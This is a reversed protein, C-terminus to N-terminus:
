PMAQTLSIFQTLQLDYSAKLDAYKKKLLGVDAKARPLEEVGWAIGNIGLEGNIYDSKEQTGDPIIVVPCGCMIAEYTLITSNDFCYLVKSARFLKGLERKKPSDRTIEFVRNRDFFGEKFSSKGVYFCELGRFRDSDGDNFFISEDITPLYLKGAVKNRIAPAYANAYNFVLESESYVRDGGLLGPKNLVWRAVRKANLPNGPVTEPYVVVYRDLVWKSLDGSSLLPAIYKESTTQSGFIFSPYGRLNLDHCLRYLCIIGASNSVYNPAVIIYGTEASSELGAKSFSNKYRILEKLRDEFATLGAKGQIEPSFSRTFHKVGHLGHFFSWYALKKFLPWYGGSHLRMLPLLGIFKSVRRCQRVVWSSM